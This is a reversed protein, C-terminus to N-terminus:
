DSWPWCCPSIQMKEFGLFLPGFPPSDRVFFTLNSASIWCFFCIFRKFSSTTRFVLSISSSRDLNCSLSTPVWSVLLKFSSWRGFKPKLLKFVNQWYRSGKKGKRSNEVSGECICFIHSDIRSKSELSGSLGESKISNNLYQLMKAVPLIRKLNENM